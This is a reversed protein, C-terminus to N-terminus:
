QQRKKIQMLLPYEDLHNSSLPANGTQIEHEALNTLGIDWEDRSFSDKFNNLLAAVQGKEREGLDKTSRNFLDQLHEPVPTTMGIKVERTNAPGTGQSKVTAEPQLKVRRARHFDGEDEENEQALLILPHGVIPEAKGLVADQKISVETSFPNLLRVKCTCGQNIDVLTAAMRLPYTDLFHETPEILWDTEASFEDYEYRDVYVNVVAEAKAPIITHDAATVRRVKSKLGVQIIPVEEDKVQLVGKSLLLDAPGGKGNQLVDIGLLGDDDIDAVVAEVEVAVQGLKLSFTGQGLENIATGTPGVLRASKVLSPRDGIEMAEYTRRSIITKSAGTDATFLIPYGQISGRIYIGDPLRRSTKISKLVEGRKMNLQGNNDACAERLGDPVAQM